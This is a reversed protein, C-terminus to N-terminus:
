VIHATDNWLLIARREREFGLECVAATGLWLRGGLRPDQEIWRAALIRLVHGHAVLATTEAEADLVRAIVRDAREAVAEIAEGGPCGDRWIDWGPRERRIDPTKRGEYEGYDWEPLDDDIQAHEDLGALEATRRARLLPSTLVLDFSESSLRARLAGAAVVGAETLDIDTRGTHQGSKSWETEGHRVLVVRASV